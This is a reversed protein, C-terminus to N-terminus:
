RAGKGGDFRYRIGALRRGCRDVVLAVRDAVTTGTVTIYTM